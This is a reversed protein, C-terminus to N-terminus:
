NRSPLQELAEQVLQARDQPRLERRLLRGAMVQALDVSRETMEQLAVNKAATIDDVARQRQRDAAEQADAIIRQGASEADQRATALMQRAQEGASALQAEYQQLRLAAQEASRRAEDIQSAIAQERRELGAVIPGWAFKALVGLLLLFVVFTWLALDSKLESPDELQPGANAHGLDTPDHDPDAHAAEQGAGHDAAAAPPGHSEQGRLAQGALFLPLMAM